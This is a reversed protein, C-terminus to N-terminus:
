RAFLEWHHDALVLCLAALGSPALYLPSTLPEREKATLPVWSRSRVVLWLHGFVGRVLNVFGFKWILIAVAMVGGIIFTWLMCEVGRDVGLCAGMMAVLKVDGGGIPFLLRCLLMLGACLLFGNLAFGLGPGYLSNLLLGALIGPYVIANPIFHRTLDTATVVVQVVVLLVVAAM